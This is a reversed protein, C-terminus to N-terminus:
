GGGTFLAIYVPTMAAAPAAPNAAVKGRVIVEFPLYRYARSTRDLMAPPTSPNAALESRLLWRRRRWLKALLDPPAGSNGALIRRVIYSTDGALM